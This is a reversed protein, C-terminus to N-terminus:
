RFGTGTDAIPNHDLRLLPEFTDVLLSDRRHADALGTEVLCSSRASTAADMHGQRLAQEYLGAGAEGLKAVAHNPHPPPPTAEPTM